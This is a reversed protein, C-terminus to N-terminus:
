GHLEVALVRLRMQQALQRPLKAAASHPGLSSLQRPLQQLCADNLLQVGELRM